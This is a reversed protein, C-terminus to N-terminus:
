SVLKGAKISMVAITASWLTQLAVAVVATSTATSVSVSNHSQSNM